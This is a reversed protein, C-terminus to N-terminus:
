LSLMRYKRAGSFPSRSNRKNIGYNLTGEARVGVMSTRKYLQWACLVQQVPTAPLTNCLNAANRLNRKNIDPAAKSVNLNGREIQTYTHTPPDIFM